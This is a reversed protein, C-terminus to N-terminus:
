YSPPEEDAPHASEAPKSPDDMRYAKSKQVKRVRKAYLARLQERVREMWKPQEMMSHFSKAYYMKELDRVVYYYKILADGDVGFAVFAEERDQAPINMCTEYAMEADALSITYPMNEHAHFIPKNNPACNTRLMRVHLSLKKPMQGKPVHTRPRQAFLM